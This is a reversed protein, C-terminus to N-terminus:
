RERALLSAQQEYFVGDREHRFGAKELVRRSAANEPRVVAVVRQLGCQEFGYRLIAHAAETAYGQGWSSRGLYYGLEVDDSGDLRQLGAHGIIKGTARLEAIWMGFGDREWGDLRDAWRRLSDALPLRRHAWTVAADDDVEARHAALDEARFGRLVLRETGVEPIVM